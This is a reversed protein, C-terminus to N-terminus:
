HSLSYLFFFCVFMYFSTLIFAIIKKAQTAAAEANQTGLIGSNGSRGDGEVGSNPLGKGTIGGLV